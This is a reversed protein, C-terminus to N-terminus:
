QVSVSALLNIIPATQVTYGTSKFQQGAEQFRLTGGTLTLAGLGSTITLNVTLGSNTISAVPWTGNVAGGAMGTVIMNTGVYKGVATAGFPPSGSAWTLALNGTGSTYTRTTMASNDANKVYSSYNGNVALSKPSTNIPTATTSNPIPITTTKRSNTELDAAIMLTQSTDVGYVLTDVYTIGNLQTLNNQNCTANTNTIVLNFSNSTNCKIRTPSVTSQWNYPCGSASGTTCTTALENGPGVWLNDIIISGALPNYFGLILNGKPSAPLPGLETPNIKSVVTQFVTLGPSAATSVTGAATTCPGVKVPNCFRYIDIYSGIVSGFSPGGTPTFLFGSLVIWAVFVALPINRKM